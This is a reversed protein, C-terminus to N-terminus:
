DQFRLLAPLFGDRLSERLKWAIGEQPKNVGFAVIVSKLSPKAKGTGRWRQLRASARRNGHHSRFPSERTTSGFGHLFTDGSSDGQRQPTGTASSDRLRSRVKSRHGTLAPNWRAHRERDGVNAARPRPPERRTRYTQAPASSATPNDSKAAIIQARRRRDRRRHCFQRISARSNQRKKVGSGFVYTPGTPPTRRCTGYKRRRSFRLLTYAHHARAFCGQPLVRTDPSQAPSPNRSSSERRSCHSPHSQSPHISRPQSQLRIAPHLSRAHLRQASM